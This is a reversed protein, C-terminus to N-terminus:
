KITNIQKNFLNKHIILQKRLNIMTENNEFDIFSRDIQDSMENKIAKYTRRLIDYHNIFM